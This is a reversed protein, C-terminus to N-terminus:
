DNEEYKRIEYLIENRRMFPPTFPPNYRAVLVDSLIEYGKSELWLKLHGSMRLFKEQSWVGSFRIAGYTGEEVRRIKVRPDSPEPLDEFPISRPMVFSTTMKDGRAENIVPATMSIKRGGENDGGIYRFIDNFGSNMDEGREKEIEAINFGRYSRIEINGDKELLDYEPQEIMPM